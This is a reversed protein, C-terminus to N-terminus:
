GRRTLAADIRARLAPAPQAGVIRDVVQGGAMLLILPISQAQHRSATVPSSDVDVKVVKIRGAYEKSLAELVPAVMRCPGCWTAWLDVVVLAKTTVAAEFDADGADVLWPLDAKCAACRPHGQAAVPLRNKKGCSPCVVVPNTM